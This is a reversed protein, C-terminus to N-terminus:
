ITYIVEDMCKEDNCNDNETDSAGESEDDVELLTVQDMEDESDDGSDIQLFQDNLCNEYFRNPTRKKHPHDIQPLSYDKPAKQFYKLINNSNSESENSRKSM